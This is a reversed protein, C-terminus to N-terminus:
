TSALVRIHKKLYRKLKDDLAQGEGLAEYLLALVQGQKDYALRAFGRSALDQTLFKLAIGLRDADVILAFDDDGRMPGQGTLLWDVTVDLIDAIRTIKDIGPLRPKGDKSDTLWLQVTPPAENLLKSAAAIRGRGKPIAPIADLAKHLQKAIDLKKM